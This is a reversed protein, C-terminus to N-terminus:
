RKSQLPLPHQVPLNPTGGQTSLNVTSVESCSQCNGGRRGQGQLGCTLRMKELSPTTIDLSTAGTDSEFSLSIQSSSACKCKLCKFKM